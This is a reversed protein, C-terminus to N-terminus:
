KNPVYTEADAVFCSTKSDLYSRCSSIATESIDIGTYSHYGVQQLRTVLTGEGCGVELISGAPRRSAVYAVVIANHAQECLDHLRNWRGDKYQAEWHQQSPVSPTGVLATIARAVPNERLFVYRYYLRVPLKM